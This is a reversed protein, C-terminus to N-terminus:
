WLRKVGYADFIADQSVMTFGELLAQATLLRDFPDRHHQPLTEVYTVHALEIGLLGFHNIALQKPLFTSAPEGLDLKKLGAKIAIEWCVVMSVHKSNAPDEILQKATNCLQPDDELFWLLTHTDLLLKM